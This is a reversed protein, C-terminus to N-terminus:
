LLLKLYLRVQKIIIPTSYVHRGRMTNWKWHTGGQRYKIKKRQNGSKTPYLTHVIGTGKYTLLRYQILEGNTHIHNGVYMDFEDVRWNLDDRRNGAKYVSEAIGLYDHSSIGTRMESTKSLEEKDERWVQRGFRHRYTIHHVGTADNGNVMILNSTHSIRFISAKKSTLGVLRPDAWYGSSAEDLIAKIEESTLLDEEM